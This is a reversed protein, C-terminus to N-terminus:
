DVRKQLHDETEGFHNIDFTDFKANSSHAFPQQKFPSNGAYKNYDKSQLQVWSRPDGQWTSGDPMKLWTGNAKAEREIKMYEPIHKKLAAVDAVDYTGTARTKFWSEPSWDLESIFKTNANVTNDIDATRSNNISQLQAGLQEEFNDSFVDNETAARQTTSANTSSINAPRVRTTNAATNVPTFGTIPQMGERSTNLAEDTMTLNRTAKAM